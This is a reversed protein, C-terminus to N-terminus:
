LGIETPEEYVTAPRPPYEGGDFLERDGLPEPLEVKIPPFPPLGYACLENGGGGRHRLWITMALKTGVRDFRAKGVIVPPKEKGSCHAGTIIRITRTEPGLPPQGPALFWTDAYRGKRMTWLWCKQGYSEMRWHGHRHALEIHELEHGSELEAGPLGRVFAARDSLRRALRWGHKATKVGVLRVEQRLARDLATSLGAEPVESFVVNPDFSLSGCSTRYPWNPWESTVPLAPLRHSEEGTAPTAALVAACLVAAAILWIRSSM